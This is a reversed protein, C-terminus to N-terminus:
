SKRSFINKLFGTLGDGSASNRSQSVKITIRTGSGWPWLLACECHEADRRFYMTQDKRIGGYPKARRNAEGSPSCGEPKLAPGFYATLIKHLPDLSAKAIVAEFYEETQARSEEIKVTQIQALFDQFTM